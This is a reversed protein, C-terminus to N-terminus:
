WHAKSPSLKDSGSGFHMGCTVSPNYNYVSDWIALLMWLSVLADKLFIIYQTEVDNLYMIIKVRYTDGNFRETYYYNVVNRVKSRKNGLSSAFSPLQSPLIYSWALASFFRANQLEENLDDEENDFRSRTHLHNEILGGASIM